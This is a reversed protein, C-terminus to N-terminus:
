QSVMDIWDKMASNSCGFKTHGSGLNLNEIIQECSCGATDELTYAPSQKGNTDFTTDGDVLAWRNKGLGQTPVSEPIVTGPCADISDVVGDCDEDDPATLAVNDVQAYWDWDGSNPNYYHWRVQVETEGLYAGLDISVAEGPPASVGGHNENWSLLNSWNSGGDTTIDVDLMDTGINRYNALYDLSASAQNQLSFTNSIMETDYETFIFADSNVSAADGEGSTFNGSLGSSAIDTWVVGTGENDVVAWSGPIGDDFEVTGANCALNYVIERCMSPTAPTPTNDNLVVDEVFFNTHNTQTGSTGGIYLDHAAGDAYATVDFSYEVYAGETTDCTVTGIDAGDLSVHLVDPVPGDCIGRLVLMTLDTSAAPITVSQEVSSTVGPPGLGGIWVLWSGTNALSAAPCGNAPGCLPFGSIGGFDSTATWDGNSFSDEFSGDAVVNTGDLNAPTPDTCVWGDEVECVSSCGDGDDMNGDDCVEGLDLMGDGCIPLEEDSCSYAHVDDVYWGVIGFCGDTGMDFRLQVSDGPFALGYLDIQSQGWSGGNSGGDTGTFAEEGGLPNDSGNLVGNYANFSYAASPVVTWPGSNVSVKVNAGDWAAETAVWHDFAVHPVEGVPLVIVPSDLNAAGAELETSCNGANTNPGFAGFGSGNGAPLSSDISWGPNTYTGPDVVDHSGATWGAPLSGSEFDEFMITQVSGVGECLAPADPELLSAFGCQDPPTRFEVADNIGSVQACDSADIIEGSPLGDTLGPLDIGTLSGCAADLADANDAFNSAPTLMTSAMWQIHAAKILGLGSGSYGNYTGGDVMLAYAHNPVGSNFHVGGNDGTTCWYQTDTVKGPDGLCNPNWMDRLAGVSSEEGELWRYSVDPVGGTFTSCGGDSRPGGPADLGRGNILDVTEGFIDSYSENLAGSQWAYILDNNYQTYAHAWEHGTIDDTTLGPCFSIYIGNWSANPCSDGRNFISDMTAGGGDFSDRGFAFSYLDYTEGSALIMNDAELNGTPFPLQGEVWFPSGPYNPGPHAFGEADYARRDLADYIGTYQEIVKGNHADVYVFERVSINANTVEVEYALHDRGPIGQVLGSRFVMLNTTVANLSDINSAANEGDEAAAMARELQQQSVTRTARAAAEDATLNPNTDVNIKSVFNGNVAFMDGNADFHARLEAGFVPLGNYTQRFISHQTGMAGSRTGVATLEANADSVGFADGHKRLFGMARGQPPAKSASKNGKPLRVFRAQGTNRDVSVQAKGNTADILDQVGEAHAGKNGEAMAISATAFLFTSVIFKLSSKM